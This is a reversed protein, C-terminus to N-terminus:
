AGIQFTTRTGCQLKSNGCGRLLNINWKIPLKENTCFALLLVEVANSKYTLCDLLAGFICASLTLSEFFFFPFLISVSVLSGISKLNAHCLPIWTPLPMSASIKKIIPKEIFCLSLTFLLHAFHNQQQTTPNLGRLGSLALYLLLSLMCLTPSHKWYESWKTLFICYNDFLFCIDQIM